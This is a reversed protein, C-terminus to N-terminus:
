EFLNLQNPSVDEVQKIRQMTVEDRWEAIRTRSIDCYEQSIDIGVYNFGDQKCAIGTTGSGNFPDLVIGGVPTILKVLYRMLSVPKVTPHFNKAVAKISGFKGAAEENYTGGGGKSQKDDFQKLGYNREWQSTKACYFFRSAGGEDGYTESLPHNVDFKGYIGNPSGSTTRTHDSTMKGSKLVGSQGDMLKVPCGEVCEWVETGDNNLGMCVCDCSHTLIVNSPFRGNPPVVTFKNAENKFGSNSGWDSDENREGRYVERKMEDVLPNVSIRSADINIAGTGHMLVNEAISKESIPKRCIIIPEYAPKLQTGWGDWQKAENRGKQGYGIVEREAGYMKDIAKGINLSKPFGSGYIWQVCDRVEFGSLRMALVGIDYTRTGFFCAVHGGSKLVRFAEKWFVPQPVFADWEKGMFGKKNHEFYGHEVWAKLMEVADPEESLGYPADTVISDFYNDPYSKLIEINNGCLIEIKLEEM